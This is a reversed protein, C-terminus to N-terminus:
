HPRRCILFDEIKENQFYVMEISFKFMAFDDLLFIKLVRFRLGIADVIEGLM